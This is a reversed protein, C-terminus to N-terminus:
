SRQLNIGAAFNVTISAFILLLYIPEWWGYFFLSALVLWFIASEYKKWRGLIFFILCTVPLFALIFEYSNFLM